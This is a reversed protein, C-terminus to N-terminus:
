RRLPVVGQSLHEPPAQTLQFPGRKYFDLPAGRMALGQAGLTSAHNPQLKSSALPLAHHKPGYQSQKAQHDKAPTLVRSLRRRRSLPTTSEVHLDRGGLLVVGKLLIGFVLHNRAKFLLLCLQVAGLAFRM